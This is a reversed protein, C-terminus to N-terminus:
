RFRFRKESVGMGSRRTYLHDDVPDDFGVDEEDRWRGGMRTRAEGSREHGVAWFPNLANYLKIVGLRRQLLPLICAAFAISFFGKFAFAQAIGSPKIEIGYIDKPSYCFLVFLADFGMSIIAM